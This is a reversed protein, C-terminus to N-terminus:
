ADHGNRRNSRTNGHDDDPRNMFNLLLRALKREGEFESLAGFNPAGHQGRPAARYVVKLLYSRLHDGDPGEAIRKLASQITGQPIQELETPQNDLDLEDWRM